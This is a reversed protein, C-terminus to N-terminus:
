ISKNMLFAMGHSRFHKNHEEETNFQAMCVQCQNDKVNNALHPAKVVKALETVACKDFCDNQQFYKDDNLINHFHVLHKILSPKVVFCEGCEMCQYATSINRHTTIHEHFVKRNTNKYECLRCQYTGDFSIPKDAILDNQVPPKKPSSFKHRKRPRIEDSSSAPHKQPSGDMDSGSSSSCKKTSNGIDVIKHIDLKEVFVQPKGYKCEHQHRRRETVSIQSKCLICVCKGPQTFSSKKYAVPLPQSFCKSCYPSPMSKLYLTRNGCAICTSSMFKANAPGNGSLKKEAIGNGSNIPRARKPASIKHGKCHGIHTAMTQVSRFYCKCFKCMFIYICRSLDSCHFELHNKLMEWDMDEEECSPCAFVKLINVAEEAHTLCHDECDDLEAFTDMCTGCGYLTEIHVSKFHPGFTAESAFIKGCRRGPCRFRVSKAMHFCVEDMHTMLEKLAPFEIGCDPCVYPAKKSHVRLHAKFSCETPCILKCLRCRYSENQPKNEGLFHTASKDPIEMACEPCKKSALPAEVVTEVKTIVPMTMDGNDALSSIRPAESLIIQTKAALPQLDSTTIHINNSPEELPEATSVQVSHLDEPESKVLVRAERLAELKIFECKPINKAIQKLGVMETEGISNTGSMLVESPILTVLYKGKDEIRPSYFQSNIFTEGEVYDEEVDFLYPIDPHKGMGVLDFALVKIELNNLYIVGKDKNYHMRCHLLFSCRNYFTFDGSCGFCRYNLKVTRRNIHDLFSKKSYFMHRCSYCAYVHHGLTPEFAIWEKMEKEFLMNWKYHFNNRPVESQETLGRPNPVM